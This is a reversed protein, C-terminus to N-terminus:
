FNLQELAKKANEIASIRESVYEEICKQETLGDFEKIVKNSIDKLQSLGADLRGSYDQIRGSGRRLPDLHALACFEFLLQINTWCRARIASFESLVSKCNEFRMLNKTDTLKGSYDGTSGSHLIEGMSVLSDLAAELPECQPQDTSYRNWGTAAIGKFEIDKANEYWALANKHRNELIPLDSTNGDAGKFAAGGWLNMGADTFVKVYKLQGLTDPEEFDSTYDWIMVDALDGIECLSNADWDILMDHWLIPRIDRDCLYKLIPKIHHLFLKGKGHKKIFSSTAPNSGLTWVEDSGIHFYSIDPMLRIVDEILEIVFGSAGEALPNLSDTRDQQERLHAYKGVKLFTEMHGFSQVLPIVQLGLSAAKECIGCVQADSYVTQSRFREDVSWPFMDEWEILLANYNASAYLELLELLREYAPVLGKLDLHVARVSFRNTKKSESM